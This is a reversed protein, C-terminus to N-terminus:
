KNNVIYLDRVTDLLSADVVPLKANVTLRADDTGHRRKITFNLVLIVDGDNSFISCWRITGIM